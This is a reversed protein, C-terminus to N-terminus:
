YYFIDDGPFKPNKFGLVVVINNNMLSIMMM